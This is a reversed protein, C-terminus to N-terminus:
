QAGHDFSLGPDARRTATRGGPGRSKEFVTVDFGLEHFTRASILGSIGAGIVAVRPVPARRTHMVM